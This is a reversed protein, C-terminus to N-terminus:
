YLRPSEKNKMHEFMSELMEIHSLFEKSKHKALHPMESITIRVEELQEQPIFYDLLVENNEWNNEFENATFQAESYQKNNFQKEMKNLYQQTETYVQNLNNIHFTCLLVIVVILLTAWWLRRM